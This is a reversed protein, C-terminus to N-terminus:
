FEGSIGGLDPQATDVVKKRKDKVKLNALFKPQMQAKVIGKKLETFTLNTEPQFLLELSLREGDMGDKTTYLEKRFVVGIQKGCLAPYTDGEQKVRAGADRDYVEVEGRVAKAGPLGMLFLMANLFNEGFIAKGDKEIWLTISTVGVGPATFQLEIGTAGSEATKAFAKTFTGVYAGADTLQLAGKDADFAAAENYTFEISM